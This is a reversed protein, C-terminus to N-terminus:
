GAAQAALEEVRAHLETVYGRAEPKMLVSRLGASGPSTAATTANRALPCAEATVPATSVTSPPAVATSRGM